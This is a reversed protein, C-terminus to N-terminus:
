HTMAYFVINFALPYCKPEAFAQFFWPDTGEEEWGDGTDTNHCIMMMMRGKDDFVGRYHVERADPREWTIGTDRNRVAFGVNPTQLPRDDPIDYVCHFIPHSRPLDVPEREPFIQKVAAYFNDWQEEGWFDDVLVFGGNTLYRRLVAAEEDDVVINGVGSMFLFPYDALNPDSIEILKPEPNVKLTTLQQLRFSLNLDADPYDTYWALSQREYTSRYRLRAFTFLDGKFASDVAWNPINGRPIPGEVPGRTSFRRVGRSQAVALVGAGAV